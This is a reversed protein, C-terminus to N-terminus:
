RNSTSGQVILVVGLRAKLARHKDLERRLDKSFETARNTSVEM